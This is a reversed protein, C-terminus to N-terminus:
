SLIALLLYYAFYFDSFIKLHNLGFARSRITNQGIMVRVAFCLNNRMTGLINEKAHSYLYSAFITMGGLTEMKVWMINTIALKYVIPKRTSYTFIAFIDGDNEVVFKGRWSNKGYFAKSCNPRPVEHVTWMSKELDYVGLWDTFDTCYFIGKSCILKYWFHRPFPIGDPYTVTGWETAGLRWTSVAVATQGVCQITFIVCSPSKPSASFAFNQYSFDHNPLEISERTYPCFFFVHDVRTKSLLLWGDKANCVTSGHLESLDLRHRKNPSARINDRLPLHSLILPLVENPLEPWTMQEDPQMNSVKTYYHITKALSEM